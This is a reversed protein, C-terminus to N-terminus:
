ICTEDVGFTGIQESVSARDDVRRLSGGIACDIDRQHIAVPEEAPADGFFVKAAIRL